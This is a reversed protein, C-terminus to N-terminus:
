INEAVVAVRMALSRLLPLRNLIVDIPRLLSVTERSVGNPVFAFHTIKRTKLGAQDLMARFTMRNLKRFEGFWARIENKDIWTMMRWFPCRGNVEILVLRGGPRLLQKYNALAAPKNPYYCFTNVGLIVDFRQDILPEPLHAAPDECDGAIFTGEPCRRRAQNLIQASIDMGVVTCGRDALWRSYLGTGCGLELVTTHPRIAETLFPEYYRTFNYSQGPLTVGHKVDYIEANSDFYDQVHAKITTM